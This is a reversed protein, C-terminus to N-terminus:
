PARPRQLHLSVDAIYPETHNVVPENCDLVSLTARSGEQGGSDKTGASHLKSSSASPDVWSDPHHLM